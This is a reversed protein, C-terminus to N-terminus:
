RGEVRAHVLERDVTRQRRQLNAAVVVVMNPMLHICIAMLDSADDPLPLQSHLFLLRELFPLLGGVLGIDSSRGGRGGCGALTSFAQGTPSATRAPGPARCSSPARPARIQKLQAIQDRTTAALTVPVTGDTYRLGVFTAACPLASRAAAATM